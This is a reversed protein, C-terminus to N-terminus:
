WQHQWGGGRRGNGRELDIVGGSRSNGDGERTNGGGEGRWGVPVSESDAPPLGNLRDLPPLPTSPSFSPPLLFSLLSPTSPFRLSPPLLLSPPSYFFLSPHHSLLTLRPFLYLVLSLSPPQSPHFSSPRTAIRSKETDKNGIIEIGACCDIWHFWRARSLNIWKTIEKTAIKLRQTEERM